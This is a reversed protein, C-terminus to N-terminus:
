MGGRLHEREREGGREREREVKRVGAETLQSVFMEQDDHDVVPQEAGEREDERGKEGTREGPGPTTIKQDKTGEGSVAQHELDPPWKEHIDIKPESPADM